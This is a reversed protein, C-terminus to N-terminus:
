KFPDDEKPWLKASVMPHEIAAFDMSGCGPTAMYIIDEAIPEFGAYFHQTSKVVLARPKLPDLGAVSFCAPDFAQVRKSNVIIDIANENDEPDGVRLWAVDGLPAKAGGFPQEADRVLDMVTVELDLPNGSAPGLKGGLRVNVRAGKGADFAVDVFVPDWLPSIAVGGINREILRALVFTSDGAAGIGTNDATDALILPRSSGTADAVRDLAHDLDVFPAVLDARHNWIWRGLEGATNDALQQDNDTVVLVRMGIEPTNSWPFGHVLSVSLIGPQQELAKMRSVFGQLPERTTPFIGLMRCDYMSMRPRLGNTLMGEAIDFLEAAREVADVHPYEKYYILADSADLKAQTMHGHLDLEALLPIDAGILERVRILLDGEADPYGDAVMAGHLNLMVADVPMASALDALIEDRLAEYAARTTDGAPTAFAALGEAVTWGCSKARERWTILPLGFLSVRDGFDGGRVLMTREFLELGTPIPSFSNTETGLCATFIKM